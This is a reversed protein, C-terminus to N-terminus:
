TYFKKIQKFQLIVTYSCRITNVVYELVRSSLHELRVLCNRLERHKRM